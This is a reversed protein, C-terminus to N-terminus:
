IVYMYIYCENAGNWLLYDMFNLYRILNWKKRLGLFILFIFSYIFRISNLIGQTSAVIRVALDDWTWLSSSDPTKPIDEVTVVKDLSSTHTNLTMLQTYVPSLDIELGVLVFVGSVTFFHFYAIIM